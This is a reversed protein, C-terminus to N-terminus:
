RDLEARLGAAGRELRKRVGEHEGVLERAHERVVEYVADTEDSGALVLSEVWLLYCNTAYLEYEEVHRTIEGATHFHEAAEDFRRLGVLEEALNRHLVGVQRSEPGYYDVYSAISEALMRAGMERDGRASVLRAINAPILVRAEEFVDEHQDLIELALYYTDEAADLEGRAKHLTALNNLYPVLKVSREGLIARADGLATELVELAEDYREVVRLAMAYGLRAEAFQARSAELEGLVHLGQEFYALAQHADSPSVQLELQGLNILNTGIGTERGPGEYARYGAVVERLLARAEEYRQTFQYVVALSNRTQLLKYESEEPLRAAVELAEELALEAEAHRGMANYTNGIGRLVTWLTRLVPDELERLTALSDEFVPLAEEYRGLEVFVSGMTAQLQSRLEPRDAFEERVTAVGQELVEVVDPPDGLAVDPRASLIAEILFDFSARAEDAADTARSRADQEAALADGLRLLAGELADGHRKEQVFLASPTGALLLTGLFLGTVLAPRREAWRRARLLPGPPRAAVPRRALLNGLDAALATANSYRREPDREMAKLCVTEVDAAVRRNRARIPDPAGSTILQQTGLDDDGRYPVQLALMEYLTAGLSYVDTRADLDRRAGVQEPSMYLLTGLQSGTRTAREGRGASTLGFDLLLARGDPRLMINSPKVDRHLIGRGHAHALAEAVQAAVDLCADVWSRGPLYLDEGRLSEPARGTLQKLLEALTCGEIREMAFWPIGDNEGVTFIPVIGPHQLQAVAEAERRFRDRAGDFFLHEPRILKLAVDRKLSTQVALYVVGMGGGGLRHLLRFDGLQEPFDPPEDVGPLVELGIARLAELRRELGDALEPHDRRAADLAAARDVEPLALCRALLQEVPDLETDPGLSPRETRSM